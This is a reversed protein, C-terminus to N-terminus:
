MDRAFRYNIDEIEEPSPIRFFKYDTQSAFMFGHKLSRYSKRNLNSDLSLGKVQKDPMSRLELVADRLKSPHVSPIPTPLFPNKDIESMFEDLDLDIETAEGAFAISVDCYGRFFSESRLM